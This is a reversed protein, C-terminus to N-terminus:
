IARYQRHLLIRLVVLALLRLVIALALLVTIIVAIGAFDPSWTPSYFSHRYQVPDPLKITDNPDSSPPFKAQENAVCQVYAQNYGSYLPRCADDAQKFYDNHSSTQERATEVIAQVDRKYQETLYIDEPQANMHAAAYRQLDYLREQLVVPDGEKDATIVAQMRANVGVKNIRLLTASIFLMLILLILLQWTKVRRLYGLDRKLAKNQAM